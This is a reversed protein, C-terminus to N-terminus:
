PLVQVRLQTTLEVVALTAAQANVLMHRLRTLSEVTVTTTAAIAATADVLAMAELARNRLEDTVERLANGKDDTNQLKTGAKM